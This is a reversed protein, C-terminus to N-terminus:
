QTIFRQRQRVHFSERLHIGVPHTVLITAAFTQSDTQILKYEVETTTKGICMEKNRRVTM